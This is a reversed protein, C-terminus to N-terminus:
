QGNKFIKSFDTQRSCRHKQVLLTVFLQRHVQKDNQNERVIHNSMKRKMSIQLIRIGGELDQKQGSFDYPINFWDFLALGDSITEWNELSANSVLLVHFPFDFLINPPQTHPRNMTPIACKQVLDLRIQDIWNANLWNGENETWPLIVCISKKTQISGRRTQISRHNKHKQHDTQCCCFFPQSLKFLRPMRISNHVAGTRKCQVLGRRM